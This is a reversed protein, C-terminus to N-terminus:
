FQWRRTFWQTSVTSIAFYLVTTWSVNYLSYLSSPDLISSAHVKGPADIPPNLYGKIFAGICIDLPLAGGICLAIAMAM